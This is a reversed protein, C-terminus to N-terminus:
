PFLVTKSRQSHLELPGEEGTHAEMLQEVVQSDPTHKTQVGTQQQIGDSLVTKPLAMLQAAMLPRPPREVVEPIEQIAQELVALTEVQIQPVPM